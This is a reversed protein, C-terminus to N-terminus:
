LNNLASAHDPVARLVREYHTVADAYEGRERSRNGLYFSAEPHSPDVELGRRWAKEAAAPDGHASAHEAVRVLADTTAANMGEPTTAPQSGHCDQFRKGSGCPCPQQRSSPSSMPPPAFDPPRSTIKGHASCCTM